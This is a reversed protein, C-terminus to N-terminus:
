RKRCLTLGDAIPIMSLTIREDAHLRTNLTRIAVTEEDQKEPDIVSGGWLVNDVMILGGPRLLELCADFYAQYNEKDADIFAIDFCDKGGQDLLSALTELAPGIRLDIKDAVGAQAWFPKGIDTWERSIDCAILRGEAPLAMAVSLASYGTFTGIEIARKAGTLEVLLAMFQGQEPAIQMRSQSLKATEARLRKQIDSERMGVSLLYDRLDPELGLTSKSM